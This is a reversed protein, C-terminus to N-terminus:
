GFIWTRISGVLNNIVGRLGGGAVQRMISPLQREVERVAPLMFPQAAMKYTGFEVFSSHDADAKILLTNGDVVYNIKDRMEGTDVAALEKARATTRAGIENLAAAKNKGVNRLIADLGRTDLTIKSM